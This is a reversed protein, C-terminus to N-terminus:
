VEAAEAAAKETPKSVGGQQNLKELAEEAQTIKDRAMCLGDLLTTYEDDTLTPRVGGERLVLTLIDRYRIVEIRAWDLAEEADSILRRRSAM